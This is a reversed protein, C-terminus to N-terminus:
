ILSIRVILGMVLIPENNRFCYTYLKGMMKPSSIEYDNGYIILKRNVQSQILGYELSNANDLSVKVSLNQNSNATEFDTEFSVRPTKLSICKFETPPNNEKSSSLSTNNSSAPTEDSNESILKNEM